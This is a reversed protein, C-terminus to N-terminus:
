RNRQLSLINVKYLQMTGIPNEGHSIRTAKGLSLWSRCLRAVWRVICAPHKLTEMIWRVRARVVPDKVHARINICAIACSPTRVGFSLRCQFNVTLCFDRAAGPLRVQKLPTGTRREVLQAVDWGSLITNRPEFIEQRRTM